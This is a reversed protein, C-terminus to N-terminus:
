RDEPSPCAGGPPAPAARPRALRRTLDLAVAAAVVAWTLARVPTPLGDPLGALGELRALLDAAEQRLARLDAPLNLLPLLDPAFAAAVRATDPTPTEAHAEGAPTPRDAERPPAAAGGDESLVPGPWPMARPLHPAPAPSAAVAPAAEERAPPAWPVGHPAEPAAAAAGRDGQEAHRGGSFIADLFALRVELRAELGAREHYHPEAPADAVRAPTAAAYGQELAALGHGTTLTAVLAAEGPPQVPSATAWVSSLLVREELANLCPRCFRGSTPGYGAREDM